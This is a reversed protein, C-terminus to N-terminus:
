MQGAERKGRGRDQRGINPIRLLEQRFCELMSASDLGGEDEKIFNTPAKDASKEVM